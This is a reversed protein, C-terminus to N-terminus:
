PFQLHAPCRLSKQCMSWTGRFAKHLHPNVLGIPEHYVRASGRCCYSRTGHTGKTPSPNASIATLASAPGCAGRWSVPFLLVVQRTHCAASRTTQNYPCAHLFLFAVTLARCGSAEMYHILEMSCIMKSFIHYDSLSTLFEVDKISSSAENGHDGTPWQISNQSLHIWNM